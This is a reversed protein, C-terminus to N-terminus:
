SSSDNMGLVPFGDALMREYIRVAEDYPLPRSQAKVYGESDCLEIVYGQDGIREMKLLNEDGVPEFSSGKKKVTKLLYAFGTYEFLRYQARRAREQGIQVAEHYQM